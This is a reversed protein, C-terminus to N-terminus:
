QAPPQPLLRLEPPHRRSKRRRFPRITMRKMDLLARKCFRRDAQAPAKQIKEFLTAGRFYQKLM